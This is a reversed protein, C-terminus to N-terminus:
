YKKINKNVLKLININYYSLSIASLETYSENKHVQTIVNKSNYEVVPFVFIYPVIVINNKSINAIKKIDISKNFPIFVESFM